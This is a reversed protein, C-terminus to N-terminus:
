PRADGVTPDGASSRECWTQWMGRLARAFFGAFRPADFVPSARVQDRMRQRLATLGQLDSSYAIARDVYGSIDTAIWDSLGANTLLALGQRSVARDGALTLVPVGMWLAHATTAGGNYPFPDLAIDVRQHAALFEALPADDELILREAGVGHAVFREIVAVRVSPERFQASKLFLRSSRVSKIVRAWTAVVEGNMKAFHNFCGFTLYGNRLAPLAGVEIDVDPPTFCYRIEPLPWIAETFNTEAPKPVCYPDAILYDIASVGTTAFYGLWTAQVPAPKWAFMALRNHATHGALDILIDIRDKRVERALQEDTLAAADRWEDCLARIRKTVEDGAFRCSYAVLELEDREESMLARLTGELFQSVPHRLLDGSVFGIRLRRNADPFNTWSAYPRARQTVVDGYRRAAALLEAAPRNSLYNLTFLRNSHVDPDDNRCELSRDYSAIAGALDGLEALTRGLNNYAAWFDPKIAIARRYSAAASQCQRMADFVAGLNCHLEAIGADIAIADDFVSRAEQYRGTEKLANGLNNYADAFRPDMAIARRFCGIADSVQGLRGFALGLKNFTAASGSPAALALRLSAAAETRAGLATLAIGLDCHAEAFDPRLAVARRLSNAADAARGLRLNLAGVNYHVEVYDSEIALAREYAALAQEPQGLEDFTGGLAVEADVFRPDLELANRFATLADGQRGLRTYANGLNFHAAAYRPDNVIATRYADVARPLDGLALLANGRNLHARAYEPALAIAADYQQLAEQYRAANELANGAEILRRSGREDGPVTVRPAQGTVRGALKSLFGM